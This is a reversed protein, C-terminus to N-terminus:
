FGLLKAKLIGMQLAFKGRELDYDFLNYGSKKIRALFPAVIALPLLVDVVPKPAYQMATRMNKLNAEAVDCLERVIPITKEINKGQAVDEVSIGQQELLDLPLMIRNHYANHRMARLLGTIGYAIGGFHAAEKAQPEDIKAAALLIYFLSSATKEAYNKISELDSPILFDIDAERAEILNYFLEKPIQGERLVEYLCNTVEHKHKTPSGHSIEEIAERWWQLRIFGAMPESVIDKIKAIENNLALIPFFRGRLKEPVLLCCLYRYYDYKKVELMCFDLSHSM